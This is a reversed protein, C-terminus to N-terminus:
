LSQLAVMRRFAGERRNSLEDYTGQERLQGNELVYIRDADRITSLRHAIIVVTTSGRLQDVSEKVVLESETDLASTAEDLILLRPSKYLERAIFLRQRQGGSLRVGRDGVRTQFGEPLEEIFDLACAREAAEEVARRVERDIAYDGRWLCINNAVTDDFVVTEQSVYGIQERWSGVHIEDHPVGDIRLVGSGPRLLLTLLDVLTSKGAGSEGVIAVTENVPIVLTVDQLVNGDAPDYAFSVRELEIGRSLPGLMRTGSVERNDHVRQFEGEIVELSGTAEMTAQWASQLTIIKGMARHILVVAVLIPALPQALVTVQVIIISIVVAIALPERAASTFSSAIGHRRQYGSLKRISGVIARRLPRIQATAALYKFAQMAQVLFHNLTGNEKAARVSLTRVYRNLRRFLVLVAAGALLAMLAFTWSILFAFAFYTAVGIGAALFSVYQNFCKVVGATQATLLNVFHGTNRGSYYHYGMGSYADFLRGRLEQMLQAKLHSKYAGAAFTILGKLLFVLAMFALIGAMSDEIGFVALAEVLAGELRSAGADPAAAAVEAAGEEEGNGVDLLVLLPLLLAIGLGETAAALLTLALVLHLRAGIYRGFTSFYGRISRTPAM